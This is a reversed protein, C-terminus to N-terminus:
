KGFGVKRINEEAFSLYIVKDAPVAITRGKADSLTLLGSDSELAERLQALVKDQTSETDVSLERTAYKVGIKVEM